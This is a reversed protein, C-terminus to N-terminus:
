HGTGMLCRDYMWKAWEDFTTENVDQATVYICGGLHYYGEDGDEKEPYEEEGTEDNYGDSYWKQAIRDAQFTAEELTEAEILVDHSYEQEGNQEHIVASFLKM